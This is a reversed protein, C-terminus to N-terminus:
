FQDSESDSGHDISLDKIQSSLATIQGQVYAFQDATHQVHSDLLTYLQDVRALLRDLRNPGRAPASSSPQASTEPASTFRDIEEKTDGGEEEVCDRSIQSM